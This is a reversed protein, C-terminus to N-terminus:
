EKTSLKVHKKVFFFFERGAFSGWKKSDLVLETQPNQVVGIGSSTLTQSMVNLSNPIGFLIIELKLAKQLKKFSM